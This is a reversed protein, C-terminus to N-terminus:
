VLPLQEGDFLPRLGQVPKDGLVEVVANTTLKATCARSVNFVCQDRALTTM